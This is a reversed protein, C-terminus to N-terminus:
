NSPCSLLFCDICRRKNNLPCGSVDDEFMHVILANLCQAINENGGQSGQGSMLFYKLCKIDKEVNSKEKRKIMEQTHNYGNPHSPRAWSVKM